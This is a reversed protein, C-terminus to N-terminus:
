EREHLRGIGPWGVEPPPNAQTLFPKATLIYVVWHKIYLFKYNAKRQQSTHDFPTMLAASGLQRPQGSGFPTAQM